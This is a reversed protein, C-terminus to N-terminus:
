NHERANTCTCTCMYAYMCTHTHIYVALCKCHHIAIKCPCLMCTHCMVCVHAIIFLLRAHVCCVHIACSVCMHLSSYCDQVSVVYPVHCVCARTSAYYVYLVNVYMTCVYMCFVVTQAHALLEWQSSLVCEQICVTYM